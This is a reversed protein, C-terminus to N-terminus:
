GDTEIWGYAMFVEENPTPAFVEFRYDLALYTMTFYFLYEAVVFWLGYTFSLDHYDKRVPWLELHVDGAVWHEQPPVVRTWTSPKAAESAAHRFLSIVQSPSRLHENQHFQFFKLQM